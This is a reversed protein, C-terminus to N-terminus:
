EPSPPSCCSRKPVAAPRDPWRLRRRRADELGSRSSPQWFSPTTQLPAKQVEHLLALGLSWTANTMSPVSLMAPLCRLRLACWWKRFMTSSRRCTVLPSPALCHREGSTTYRSTADWRPGVVIVAACGRRWSGAAAGLLREGRDRRLGAGGVKRLQDVQAHVFREAWSSQDSM